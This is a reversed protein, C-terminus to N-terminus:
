FSTQKLELAKGILEYASKSQVGNTQEAFVWIGKAGM